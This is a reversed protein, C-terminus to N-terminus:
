FHATAVSKRTVSELDASSCQSVHNYRLDGQLGLRINVELSQIMSGVFSRGYTCADKTGCGILIETQNGTGSRRTATYTVCRDMAGMCSMTDTSLCESSNPTYCSRCTLGNEVGPALSVNSTQPTCYQTQCCTTKMIIAKNPHSVVIFLDCQGTRGCRQLHEEVIVGGADAVQM